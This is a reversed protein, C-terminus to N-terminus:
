LELIRTEWETQANLGQCLKHALGDLDPFLSYHNIGVLFLEMWVRTCYQNPIVFKEIEFNKRDRQELPVFENWGLPLNHVTFCGQQSTIRPSHHPPFYLACDFDDDGSHACQWAEINEFGGPDALETKPNLRWIVADEEIRERAHPELAFYLAVLGSTTWDLLRTPLGHHQALALWELIDRPQTSLLPAAQKQFDRLLVNEKASWHALISNAKTRLLGPVLQFSSRSHGRYIWRQRPGSVISQIFESASSIQTIRNQSLPKM